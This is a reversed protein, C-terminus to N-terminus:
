PVNWRNENIFVSLKTQLHNHLHSPINFASILPEGCWPDLWFRIDEGNGIKWTVQEQLTSFKHKASSWISSFVHHNIPKNDRLVRSRVLQAWQLDSQMIDWCNKLNGAENIDSLNRIGLGGEKIPKCVKHWSVTVLKRQNIDGSWIFNRMWKELYKLLKVPWSFISLCHLLMSQVVSKVLQVRGVMSLLSAKWAALKCKVKDAIPQFYIYKPKGKFIPVGLYQFPLSGISFGINQAIQNLRHNTISGAYISSKNPNVFQGSAEAYKFFVHKLVNINSSTGKCFIMMDDAYLIHSPIHLDRTGHMLTLKGERVLKTLSRSIVEEALCFLLPSLPDGQRVGRNCSFFGHLKGNISVSLKASLLIVNIWNCFKECFGFGKLVRLLFSWDLTDFAKAIDVKMALNGGYTKKNLLNIAEYTLGICDKISRGKIFGRQQTSIIAPMFYSLRDALIKSILKFKFNAIAIPRYDSVAAAHNTKPVLVINNSNFNPLIWGTKFFQLV